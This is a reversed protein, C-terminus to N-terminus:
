ANVVPTELVDDLKDRLALAIESTLPLHRYEGDADEFEVNFRVPYIVVLGAKKPEAM